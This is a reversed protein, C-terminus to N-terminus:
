SSWICGCFVALGTLISEINDKIWQAVGVIADVILKLLSEGEGWVVEPNPDIGYPNHDVVTQENTSASASKLYQDCIGIVYDSLEQRGMNKTLPSSTDHYPYQKLLYEPVGLAKATDKVKAQAEENLRSVNITPTAVSIKTITFSVSLMDNTVTYNVYEQTVKNGSPTVSHLREGNEYAYGEYKGTYLKWNANAGFRHYLKKEIVRFEEKLTGGSGSGFMSTADHGSPDSYKYPNNQAYNYRNRSAVDDQTGRYTDEQIVNGM